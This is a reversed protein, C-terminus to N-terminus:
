PAPAPLPVLPSSGGSQLCRSAPPAGEGRQLRFSAATVAGRRAGPLSSLPQPNGFFPPCLPVVISAAIHGRELIVGRMSSAVGCRGFDGRWWRPSSRRRCWAPSAWWAARRWGLAAACRAIPPPPFAGKRGGKQAAGEPARRVASDSSSLPSGAEEERTSQRPSSAKSCQKGRLLPGCFLVVVLGPVPNNTVAYISSPTLPTLLARKLTQYKLPREYRGTWRTTEM